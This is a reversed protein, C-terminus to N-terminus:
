YLSSSYIAAYGTTFVKHTTLWFGLHFYIRFVRLTISIDHYVAADQELMSVNHYLDIHSQGPAAFESIFPKYLVTSYSCVIACPLRQFNYM